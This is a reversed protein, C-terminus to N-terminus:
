ISSNKKTFCEARKDILHYLKSFVKKDPYSDINVYTNSDLYDRKALKEFYFEKDLMVFTNVNNEKQIVINPNNTLETLASREINSLNNENVLKILDANKTSNIINSLEQNPNTPNYFTNRELLSKDEFEINWFKERCIM